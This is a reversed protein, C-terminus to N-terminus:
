HESACNSAFPDGAGLTSIDTVFVAMVVLSRSSWRKREQHAWGLLSQEQCVHRAGWGTGTVLGLDSHHVDTNLVHEAPLCTWAHPTLMRPDRQALYSWPLNPPLLARGRCNPDLGALARSVSVELSLCAGLTSAGGMYLGPYLLLCVAQGEVAHAYGPPIAWSTKHHGFQPFFHVLSSLFLFTCPSRGTTLTCSPQFKSM